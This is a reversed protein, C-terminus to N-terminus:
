RAGWIFLKKEYRDYWSTNPLIAAHFDILQIRATKKNGYLYLWHVYHSSWNTLWDKIFSAQAKMEEYFSLFEGFYIRQRDLWADSIKNMQENLQSQIELLEQYYLLLRQITKECSVSLNQRQEAQLIIEEQVPWEEFWEAFLDEQCEIIAQLEEQYLHFLRLSETQDELM